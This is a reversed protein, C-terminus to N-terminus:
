ERRALVLYRLPGGSDLTDFPFCTVLLLRAQPAELPQKDSDVIAVTDVKWRQWDGHKRQLRLTDGARLDKLFRFHTDRHGALLLPSSGAGVHHVRGPGFALANGSGGELVYLDIGQRPAQLRMVPWTDAWPWPKAMGPTDWARAILVQALQAKLLIWAGPLLQALAACLLLPGLFRVFRSV